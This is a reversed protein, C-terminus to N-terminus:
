PILYIVYCQRKNRASAGANVIDSIREAGKKSVDLTKMFESIKTDTM